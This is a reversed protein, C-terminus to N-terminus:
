VDVCYVGTTTVSHGCYGSMEMVDAIELAMGDENIEM